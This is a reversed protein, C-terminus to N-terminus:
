DIRYVALAKLFNDDCYRIRCRVCSGRYLKHPGPDIFVRADQVSDRSYVAVAEEGGNESAPTQIYAEIMEGRSFYERLDQQQAQRHAREKSGRSTEASMITSNPM